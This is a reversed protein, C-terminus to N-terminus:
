RVKDAGALDGRRRMIESIVLSALAVGQNMDIAQFLQVSQEVDRMAEDLQGLLMRSFALQRAAQAGWYPFGLQRGRLRARELVPIALEPRGGQSHAFGEHLDLEMQAGAPLPSKRLSELVELSELHRGSLRLDAVLDVGYEIKDP